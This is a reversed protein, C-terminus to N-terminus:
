EGGEAELRVSLSGSNQALLERALSLDGDEVTICLTEGEWAYSAQIGNQTLVSELARASVERILPGEYDAPDGSLTPPPTFRSIEAAAAHWDANAGTQVASTLIYLLLVTNIVPKFRNDPWFIRIMGAAACLLCIGLAIQRLSQM